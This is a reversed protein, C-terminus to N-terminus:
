KSIFEIKKHISNKANNGSQDTILLEINNIQKIDASLKENKHLKDKISMVNILTKKRDELKDVKAQLRLMCNQFKYSRISSGVWLNSNYQMRNYIKDLEDVIEKIAEDISQICYMITNPTNETIEIEHLLFQATKIKNEVDIKQIFQKIEEAGNSTRQMITSILNYASKVTESLGSILGFTLHAGLAGIVFSM